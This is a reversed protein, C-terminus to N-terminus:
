SLNNHLRRNVLRLVLHRNRSRPTPHPSRNEHQKVPQISSLSVHVASDKRAAISRLIPKCDLLVQRDYSVGSTQNMMHIISSLGVEDFILTLEYLSLRILSM